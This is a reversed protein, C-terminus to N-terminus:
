LLFSDSLLSWKQLFPLLLLSFQILLYYLSLLLFNSIIDLSIYFWSLFWWYSHLCLFIESLESSYRYKRIYRFLFWDSLLICSGNKYFVRSFFSLNTSTRIYFRPLGKRLNPLRKNQSISFLWGNLSYWFFDILDFRVNSRLYNYIYILWM